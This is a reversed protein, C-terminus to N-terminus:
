YMADDRITERLNGMSNFERVFAVGVSRQLGTHTEMERGVVEVVRDRFIGPEMKVNDHIVVHVTPVKPDGTTGGRREERIANRDREAQEREYKTRGDERGAGGALESAGSGGAGGGPIALAIGAAVGGVLAFAKAAAFHMPAQWATFPNALAALGRAIEMLSEVLAQAALNAVIAKTMKAFSVGAGAGGSLFAALMSGFGQAIGQFAGTAFTKFEEIVMKHQDFNPAPPPGNERMFEYPDVRPGGEQGPAQPFKANADVGPPVFPQPPNKAMLEDVLQITRELKQMYADADKGKAAFLNTTTAREFQEWQEQLIKLAHTIEGYAAADGIALNQEAQLRKKREEFMTRAETEVRANATVYSIAGQEAMRRQRNIYEQSQSDLLELERRHRLQMDALAKDGLERDLEAMRARFAARAQERQADLTSLRAAKMEQTHEEDVAAKIAEVREARMQEERAKWRDAEAKKATGIYRVYDGMAQYLGLAEDLAKRYAAEAATQAARLSEQVARTHMQAAKEAAEAAGAGADTSVVAPQGAAAPSNVFGGGRASGGPGFPDAAGAERREQPTARNKFGTLDFGTTRDLWAAWENGLDNIEKLDDIFNRRAGQGDKLRRSFEDLSEKVLPMLQEGLERKVSGLQHTVEDLKDGFADAAGAADKSVVLGLERAKEIVKDIDGGTEAIFVALQKYARGMIQSGLANRQGEATMGGLSKIVTRLTGDSDNLAANFDTIGVRALAARLGDNGRAAEGLNKQLILNAQALAETSSANQTLELDLGSLTEVALGSQVSLDHYKSELDAADKALNFVETAVSRFIRVGDGIMEFGARINALNSFVGKLSAGFSASSKGMESAAGGIESQVAGRFKRLEAVGDSSDAKIKYTLSAESASM